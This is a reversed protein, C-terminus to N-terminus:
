GGEEEGVYIECKCEPCCDYGKKQLDDIARDSLTEM